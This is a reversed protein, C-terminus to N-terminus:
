DLPKIHFLADVEVLAGFPLSSTGVAFRTHRGADGLAAVMLDSAGNIIAPHDTFDTSAAVFGGLKICQEIRGLDGIAAKAQSLINVACLRAAAQGREIEDDGSGNLQGQYQLTGDSMPLQGSIFLESGRLVFPVYNAAPAPAAGLTIGLKELREEIGTM